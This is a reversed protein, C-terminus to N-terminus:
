QAWRKPTPKVDFGFPCTNPSCGTEPIFLFRDRGWVHWRGNGCTGKVSDGVVLAGILAASGMAAGLGVGLHTRWHHRLSRVILTRLTM